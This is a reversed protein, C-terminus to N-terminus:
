LVFGLFPKSEILEFITPARRAAWALHEFAFFFPWYFRDLCRAFAPRLKTICSGYHSDRHRVPM